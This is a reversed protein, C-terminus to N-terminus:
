SLTKAAETFIKAFGATCTIAARELQRDILKDYDTTVGGAQVMELACNKDLGIIIGSTMSPIHLLRAGLPTIMRGTGQ